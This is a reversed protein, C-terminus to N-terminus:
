PTSFDRYIEVLREAKATWTFEAHVREVAARGLARCTDPNDALREMAARLSAVLENRHRLPLRIGAEGVLEGPGGYDAVIPVAGLAMAELVVAGGFERLSPFAFAQASALVRGLAAQDLWGAFEVGTLGAAGAARELNAREPGDGVIVLRTSRLRASGAMAEIVLDFGKYPVLRGVSAFTFAGKPEPWGDAVSIGAENL